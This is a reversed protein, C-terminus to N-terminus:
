RKSYFYLSFPGALLWASSVAPLFTPWPERQWSPQPIHPSIEASEMVKGQLNLFSECGPTSFLTSFLELHKLFPFGLAPANICFERLNVALTVCIMYTAFKIDQANGATLLPHSSFRYKGVNGRPMVATRERILGVPAGPFFSCYLMPITPVCPSSVECASVKPPLM